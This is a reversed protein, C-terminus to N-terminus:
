IIEVGEPVTIEVRERRRSMKKSVYVVGCYVCHMKYVGEKNRYGMIKKGCSSCFRVVPTWDEM